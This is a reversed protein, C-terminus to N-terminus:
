PVLQRYVDMTQALIGRVAKENTSYGSTRTTVQRLVLVEVGQETSYEKLMADTRLRIGSFKKRLNFEPKFILVTYFYPYDTSGVKNISLQGYCGLFEEPANAMTMKLKVEKPYMAKSTANEALLTMYSINVSKDLEIIMEAAQLCNKAYLIVRGAMDYRKFGSMFHPTFLMVFDGGFFVVNNDREGLGIAIIIFGVSLVVMFLFGGLCSTVEFGTRDWRKLKKDMRIIDEIQERSSTKWETNHHYREIHLRTDVGKNILLLSACIIFVAGAWFNGTLAQLIIGGGFLAIFILLRLINSMRPFFHFFLKNM